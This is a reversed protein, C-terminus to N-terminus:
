SALVGDPPAARATTVLVAMFSFRLIASTAWDTTVAASSNLHGLCPQPDPENRQAVCGCQQDRDVLAERGRFAEVDPEDALNRPRVYTVLEIDPQEIRRM